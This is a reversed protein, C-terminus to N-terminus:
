KIEKFEKCNIIKIDIGIYKKSDEDFIDLKDEYKCVGSHECNECIKNEIM